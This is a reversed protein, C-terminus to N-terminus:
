YGNSASYVLQGAARTPCCLRLSTSKSFVMQATFSDMLERKSAPSSSAATSLV